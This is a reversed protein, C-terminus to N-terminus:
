VGEPRRRVAETAAAWGLDVRGGSVAADRLLLLLLVVCLVACPVARLVAKLVADTATAFSHVTATCPIPLHSGSKPSNLHLAVFWLTCWLM